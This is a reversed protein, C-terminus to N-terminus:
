VVKKGLVQEFSFEKVNRGQKLDGAPFDKEWSYIYTRAEAQEKMKIIDNLHRAAEDQKRSIEQTAIAAAGTEIALKAASWATFGTVALFALVGGIAGALNSKKLPKLLYVEELQQCVNTLTEDAM